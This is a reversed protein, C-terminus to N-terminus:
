KKSKALARLDVSDDSLEADSPTMGAEILARAGRVDKGRNFGAAAVLRDGDMYFATFSRADVEGRFVQRDWKLPHGSMQINVDYQDSWFWPVEVYPTTDGLMSRAAASGQNQANQWHEVRISTGNYPNPHKAVDGAAFVDPASTRCQEDVVIGNDVTIGADQALEVNPSIGVGVVVVDADFSGESTLVRRVQSDGEFGEVKIGTHLDVGNDRHIQGHIKGVDEGLARVLPVAEAEFLTVDCGRTRAAAAIESGIFGAGVVVVRVGAGLKPSLAEADRFTRFTHIGDLDAGPSSMMRPRGGTVLLLKDFPVRAGDGTEVEKAGLDLRTARVGLMLSIDNEAYWEEPRLFAKELPQEGRLFEKSLPPREYPRDPEDGIMTIPGDFGQKRLVEVARGGALNAGVIVIGRGSAV